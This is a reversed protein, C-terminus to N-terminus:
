VKDLVERIKRALGSLSYPKGIFSVGEDLVGHHVIADDTYGSTFLVRTEPRIRTLRDALERGNMGLMVVDTFLLDIRERYGMALALAEDGNSAQMVRYGLRELIQVCLNRVIEEDEVILVTESGVMLETPLDSERSRAAEGEVRPLYIKFSTGKGVESYVEISGDSQKVVGYITALGLGTGTGKPKTTFFPEFIQKKVEESMGHGTDSVALMVFRGPRVYPHRACYEEDLAVNATEILLKGGEPMADRANVALNVLIQEFQGRDVKVMGLGEEPITKLEINEGILRVLMTHLGSILENLDLIKPEIIQKRSFALLQQTLTASREAAKNAEALLGGAPDSPSLKMLALTINGIIATLLNNFDHAVGGALRGVAEMKMAQHLQSQLREKEEESRKRDTVDWVSSLMLQKGPIPTNMASIFTTESGTRTIPVDVWYMREPNGSACDDLVRKKIEERFEPEEYVADWFSDPDALAERTVRYFRPFNDNMYIFKVAPDVSNVAIGIPLNDMITYMFAESERLAEEARKRETIDRAIGQVGVPSAGRYIIRTSIELPVRHGDKSVIELDYRTQGGEQIKHSLMQRAVDVYEPALVSDINMKLAEDRTYGTVREAAKNISTFNGTLDNTFIIDNANEFLEQYREESERLDEESQKRNTTDRNSGRKGQFTGDAGFVPRCVHGIWRVEGDSRVIRFEIEGIADGRKAGDLYDCIHEDFRPRDEPDVIRFLLGSDRAYDEASYGTIQECSPSTYRISRDPLIWYEWDHTYDAVTRFKEENERLSQTARRVSRRLAVIWVGSLVAAAILILLANWVLPSIASPPRSFDQGTWRVFVESHETETLSDLGKQVISLLLPEDKRVGFHQPLTYIHRPVIRVNTLSKERVIYAGVPLTELLADLQGTAVMTLGTASDEVAVLHIKPHEASLWSNIGYNRVVGLRRSVMDEITKPDGGDQRVFLVYPVSLYPRSFLLFGEREPTRTLTGLLDVEGRKGAELVDSWTPYAVAQFEVGLKKGMITLLDPTIGRAVGSPDLFEFPPFLPDPAYRIPGHAAVFAREEPTLPDAATGAEQEVLPFIAVSFLLGILLLKPLFCRLISMRSLEEHGEFLQETLGSGGIGPIVM